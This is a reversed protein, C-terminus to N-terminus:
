WAFEEVYSDSIYKELLISFSNKDCLYVDNDYYYTQVFGDNCAELISYANVYASRVTKHYQYKLPNWVVLVIDGQMDTIGCLLFCSDKTTKHLSEVHPFQIRLIDPSDSWGGSTINKVFVTLRYPKGKRDIKLIICGEDGDEKSIVKYGNGIVELLNNLLVSAAVKKTKIDEISHKRSREFTTTTPEKVFGLERTYNLLKESNIKQHSNIKIKRSYATASQYNDLILGWRYIIIEEYRKAQQKIVVATKSPMIIEKKEKDYIFLNKYTQGYINTFRWAVDNGIVVAIKKLTRIYSSNFNSILEYEADDYYVLEVSPRKDYFEDILERTSQVIIPVRDPNGGQSFDNLLTQNWYYKLFYRALDYTSIIVPDEFYEKNSVIDVLAKALAMKYTNDYNCERIITEFDKDIQAMKRDKQLSRVNKTEKHPVSNYENIEESKYAKKIDPTNQEGYVTEAIHGNLYLGFAKNQNTIKYPHFVGKYIYPEGNIKNVFVHVNLDTENILAEYIVANPKNSFVLNKHNEEKEAQMFYELVINEKIWNDNYPRKLDEVTSKIFVCNYEENYYMGVQNNFNHALCCVDMYSYKEGIILNEVTSVDALDLEDIYQNILQPSSFFGKNNYNKEQENKNSTSFSARIFDVLDKDHKILNLKVIYQQISRRYEPFVTLLEKENDIVIQKITENM